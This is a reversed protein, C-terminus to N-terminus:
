DPWDGEVDDLGADFGHMFARRSTTWINAAPTLDDPRDLSAVTIDLGDEAEVRFVLQSGCAGCFERLARVSSRYSAPQGRTYRLASVPFTAWTLFAAGAAKQCMRCHCHVVVRPEGEVTYRVEGCLCGGERM